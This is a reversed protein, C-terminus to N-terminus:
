QVLDNPNISDFSSSPHSSEIFSNEQKFNQRLSSKKMNATIKQGLTKHEVGMLKFFKHREDLIPKVNECEPERKVQSKKLVTMSQRETSSGSPPIMKVATTELKQDIEIDLEDLINESESKAAPSEYDTM